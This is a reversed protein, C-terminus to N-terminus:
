SGASASAPQPDIEAARREWQEAQHNEGLKRLCNAGARLTVALSGHDVRGHVDGEEKEKIAREFWSRAEYYRGQSMLCFGVFHLSGGLSERNIRGHVDGQEKEAVARVYWPQAEEYRGASWLWLGVRHLSCGLSEHDVRGLVDGQEKKAVAGEYCSLAEEDRGMNWLCYGLEHLTRGLNEHDVRGYVDGQKKEVVAREFWGRAEDYRGIRSLSAGVQHLSRGLDEHDVRGLMDGQEQESVARESWSRAEDYRGTNVLCYGVQHLSLGLNKHDVRGNVNGKEYKAVAREFWQRAEDFRGIEYLARGVTMGQEVSLLHVTDDWLEAGLPYSILAAATGANAPSDSLEKALEVFRKVRVPIVKAIAATDDASLSISGLFKAFLQHMTPNPSGQLLHLDLCTELASDFNAESWGLGERLHQSLEEVAIRQPNMFAAANLLLRTPQELRDYAARFSDGSQRALGLQGAKLRGRRQQFALTTADPVIEVPLGDAHNVIEESLAKPLAGGTLKEVLDFSQPRSLPRVEICPWTPSPQDLLTTILVHCPSGALPLWPAIREFSEVNDYILLVPVSSLTNFTQQAQDPIPLDAPFVLDLINKGIAALNITIADKSADIWFTGGSYRDLNLRAFERALESKGVGPQGHVVVVNEQFTHAFIATIQALLDERGVFPRNGRSTINSRFRPLPATRPSDTRVRTEKANVPRLRPIQFTKEHNPERPFVSPDTTWIETPADEYRIPYITLRSGELTTYLARNPWKRTQYAAGAACRFLEGEPSAVTEVRTEHLHGRLLIHANAELTSQINAAETACLWDLPHHV